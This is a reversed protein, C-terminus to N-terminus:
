KMYREELNWVSIITEVPIAAWSPELWHTGMVMYSSGYLACFAKRKSVTILIFCPCSM